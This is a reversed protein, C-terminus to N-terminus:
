LTRFTPLLTTNKFHLIRFCVGYIDRILQILFSFLYRYM